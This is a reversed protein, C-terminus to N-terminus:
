FLENKVAYSVIGATKKAGIKNMIRKRYTKATNSTINMEGAIEEMKMEHCLLRVFLQEKQTLESSNKTKGNKSFVESITNINFLKNQHIGKKAVDYIAQILSTGDAAKSVFASAHCSIAKEVYPKTDYMSLYIIKAQPLVRQIEVSTAFGNMVPMNIDMLIVDPRYHTEQLLEILHNGSYATQTVAFESQGKLLYVLSDVFM